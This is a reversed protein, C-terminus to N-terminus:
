AMSPMFASVSACWRSTRTRPTGPYLKAGKTPITVITHAGGDRRALYQQRLKEFQPHQPHLTRLYEDPANSAALQQMVLM